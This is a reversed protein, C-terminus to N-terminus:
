GLCKQVMELLEQMRFPKGILHLPRLEPLPEAGVIKGDAISVSLFPTTASVSRFVAIAEFGREM